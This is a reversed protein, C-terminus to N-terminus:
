AAKRRAKAKSGDEIALRKESELQGANAAEESLDGILERTKALADVEVPKQKVIQGWEFRGGYSNKARRVTVLFGFTVEGPRQDEPKHFDGHYMPQINSPLYLVGSQYKTGNLDVMEFEGKLGEVPEETATVKQVLGYARGHVAGVIKQDGENPLEDAIANANCLMGFRLKGVVNVTGPIIAKRGAM